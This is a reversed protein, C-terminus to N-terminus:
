AVRLQRVRRRLEAAGHASTRAGYRLAMYLAAIRLIAWRARPLARAARQAYDRPGEHPAREVGRAALKACFAVWAKQVPDPRGLRRLSWALLGATLIGLCTFLLATLSRWDADRMGMMSMFQRQRQPNYGLVWVNWSHVLAEWQYRLGRLWEQDPRLLAPLAQVIAM